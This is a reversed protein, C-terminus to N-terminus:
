GAHAEGKPVVRADLALAGHETVLLPNVEIEGLDHRAAAFRSLAAAARAAAAVDLRPRGRAGELLASIRLSRILDEAQAEEVPALAAAVDRVLEAYLGGAGVLLVPGFREDWRVGVLLEVGEEVPATREVAYESSQLTTMRALVEELAERDAVGVAVGGADSKHVQGLAKLVIPYGLDAAAALVDDPTRAPRAEVLEIGAERVLERAEWYGPTGLRERAPAPTPLSPVGRPLRGSRRVLAALGRLAGELERYLPVGQERLALAAPSRSYMTQVLLPRAASAAAAAMARAAAVERELFEESYQSYGGFYGTLLVADVDAAGLLIAVVRAFNHVDREGGGALDVPNATAATPPLVAALEAQTREGLTPLELGLDAALDAALVTHGGGDAVV